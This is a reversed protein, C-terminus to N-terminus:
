SHVGLGGREYVFITDGHSSGTFITHLFKETLFFGKKQLFGDIVTQVADFCVVHSYNGLRNWNNELWTVPKSLFYGSEDFHGDAIPPDCTLFRVPVNVHLHSYLPTAHCPTLFLFSVNNRNKGAESSLYSMVTLTGRQHFIGFLIVPIIFGIFLVVTILTKKMKLKNSRSMCKVGIIEM